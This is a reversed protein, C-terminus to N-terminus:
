LKFSDEECAIPNKIYHYANAEPPEESVYSSAVPLEPSPPTFFPMTSPSPPSSSPDLPTSDPTSKMIQQEKKDNCNKVDDESNRSMNGDSTDRGSNRSRSWRKRSSESKVTGKTSPSFFHSMKEISKSFNNKSKMSHMGLRSSSKLNALTVRFSEWSYKDAESEEEQTQVIDFSIKEMYRIYILLAFSIILSVLIVGCSIKASIPSGYKYLNNSWMFTVNAYFMSASGGYFCLVALNGYFSCNEAWFQEFSKSEQQTGDDATVMYASQDIMAERSM